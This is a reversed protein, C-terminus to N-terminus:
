RNWLSTASSHTPFLWIATNYMMM